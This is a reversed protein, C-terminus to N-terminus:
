FEFEALGSIRFTVVRRHCDVHAHYPVLWDMGLFADFELFEIVRLDIPLDYGEITIVYRQCVLNPYIRDRTATSLVLHREARIPRLGLTDVM